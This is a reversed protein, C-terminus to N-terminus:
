EIEVLIATINDQGGRELALALLSQLGHDLDSANILMDQIERDLLHNTLGDTCLLVLDGRKVTYSYIDVELVPETGLARTIINRRPHVRAEESTIEGENILKQVFSHDETLQNIMGNSIIIGRSDGVHAIYLDKGMICAATVTTGMGRYSLNNHSLNYVSANAELVAKRLIDVPNEQRYISSKLEKELVQLALQSAVEGAKHGGMGDAVAFLKLDECVLLSDENNQRVKGTDSIKSWKM